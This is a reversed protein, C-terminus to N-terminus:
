VRTLLRRVDEAIEQYLAARVARKATFVLALPKSVRLEQIAARCRRKILNREHAKSAVKKSVVCAYKGGSASGGGASPPLPSVTLSFLGGHERRVRASRLKTFDARTLRQKRPFM